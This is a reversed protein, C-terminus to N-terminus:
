GKLSDLQDADIHDFERNIRFIAIGMVLVAVFADLLIGLEVILPTEHLLVLGFAYTGNELILYGLVQSLAKKRSIVFFLGILVMSLAVPVVLPSSLAVLSLRKGLWAAIVLSLLGAVISLTYGVFPEVERQVKAERIARLLLLPFVVGKIALTAASLGVTAIGLEHWQTLIPLVSLAVGQIAVLRICATLRSSGLVLLNTLVLLVMIVDILTSM